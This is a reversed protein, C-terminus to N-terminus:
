WPADAPHSGPVWQPWAPWPADAPHSGQEWRPWAPWPADAPHSGQEWQPWAPRPATCEVIWATGALYVGDATTRSVLEAELSDLLRRKQSDDLVELMRGEPLRAFWDLVDAPSSGVWLGDRYRELATVQFGATELVTRLRGADAFDSAHEPPDAPQGFAEPVVRRAVDDALSMWENDARATWEVFALRGGPRLAHRINAFATSTTAFHAVGFRSIAVDASSTPFAYTQADAQLWTINADPLARARERAANLMMPSIDVGIVSGIPAVHRWADLTTAGTGCGIDLVREGPTLSALALMREGFPALMRDTRDQEDIWEIRSTETNM